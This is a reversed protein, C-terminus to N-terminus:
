RSIIIYFIRRYVNRNWPCDDHSRQWCHRPLQWNYFSFTSRWPFHGIYCEAKSETSNTMTLNNGVEVLINGVYNYIQSGGGNLGGPNGHGIFACGVGGAGLFTVSPASNMILNNGAIVTIDGTCTTGPAAQSEANSSTGHGIGGHQFNSANGGLLNITGTASVSINGSQNLLPIGVGPFGHGIFADTTGATGLVAPPSLAGQLTINGSGGCGNGTATITINGSNAASTGGPRGHGVAATAPTGIGAFINLEACTININGTGGVPTTALFGVNTVAGNATGGLVNVTANPANINTNGNQSGVSVAQLSGANSINISSCNGTSQLTVDTFPTGAAGSNQINANVNINGDSILTLSTNNAWLINAGANVTISGVPSTGNILATTSITVNSLALQGTISAVSINAAASASSFTFTLGPVVNASTAPGITIINPDLLLTGFNGNPASLDALGAYDLYQMGSVETFGGNGREVGGKASINGYFGTAQDAWVVVKGGDGSMLADAKVLANTDFYTKISNKIAPNAGHEDGGILVTGAGYESSVDVLAKDLLSVFEGLLRVEGNEARISGNVTGEGQFATLFVKGGRSEVMAADIMGDHEFAASYFEVERANIKGHNVVLATSDGFFNMRGNLFDEDLIDFTSAVFAATDVVADAGILVGNPNVLYVRGNGNLAGLLESPNIGVVRNLVSSDSGPQLFQIVEGPQNSFDDWHLISGDSTTIKFASGQAEFVAQGQIVVGGQPNAMLLSPLLFLSKFFNRM